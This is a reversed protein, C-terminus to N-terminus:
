TMRSRESPFDATTLQDPRVFGVCNQAECSFRIRREIEYEVSNVGLVSIAHLLEPIAGRLVAHVQIDLMSNQQRVAGDPVDVGNRMGSSVARAIELVHAYNGVDSFAFAGLFLALCQRAVQLFTFGPKFLRLADGVDAVVIPIENRIAHGPRVFEIADVSQGRLLTGNIHRHYTFHDVRIISFMNEPCSLFGNAASHVRLRFMPNYPGIAFHTSDM